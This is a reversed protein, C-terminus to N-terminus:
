DPKGDPGTEETRGIDCGEGQKRECTGVRARKKINLEVDKAAGGSGSGQMRIRTVTKSLIRQGVTANLSGLRVM